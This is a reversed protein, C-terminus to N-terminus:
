EPGFGLFRAVISVDDASVALPSNWALTDGMMDGPISSHEDGGVVHGLEHGIIGRCKVLDTRIDVALGDATDHTWGGAGAPLSSQAVDSFYVTDATVVDTGPLAVEFATWGLAGNWAAAADTLAPLLVGAADPVLTYTPRNVPRVTEVPVAVDVVAPVVLVPEADSDSGSPIDGCGTLILTAYLSSITLLATLTNNPM